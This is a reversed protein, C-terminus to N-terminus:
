NLIAGLGKESFDTQLIYKGEPIPTHLIPATCLEEKM